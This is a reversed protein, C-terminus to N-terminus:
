SSEKPLCFRQNFQPDAFESRNKRIQSAIFEANICDGRNNYDVFDIFVDEDVDKFM